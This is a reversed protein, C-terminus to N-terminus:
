RYYHLEQGAPAQPVANQQYQWINQQQGAQTAHFDQQQNPQQAVQQQAAQNGVPQQGIQKGQQDINRQNQENMKNVLFTMQKNIEQTFERTIDNRMEIMENNWSNHRVNADNQMVGRRSNTRGGDEQQQIPNRSREFQMHMNDNKLHGYYCRIGFPCGEESDERRCKRSLDHSYRCQQGRVCEGNEAMKRCIRKHEFKCKAGFRCHKGYAFRECAKKVDTGDGHGGEHEGLSIGQESGENENGRGSRGNREDTVKALAEELTRNLKKVAEIQDLLVKNLSKQYQAEEQAEGLKKKYQHIEEKMNGCEREKKRISSEMSKKMDDFEKKSQEKNGDKNENKREAEEKMQKELENIKEKLEEERLKGREIEGRLNNTENENELKARYDLLEENMKQRMEIVADKKEEADHACTECMWLLGAVTETEEILEKHKDEVNSCTWCIWRACWDCEVEQENVNCQHCKLQAEANRRKQKKKKQHGDNGRSVPM